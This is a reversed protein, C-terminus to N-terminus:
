TCQMICRMHGQCRGCRGRRGRWGHRGGWREARAAGVKDDTMFLIKVTNTSLDLDPHKIRVLEKAFSVYDALTRNYMINEGKQSKLWYPTLKDGHRIHM